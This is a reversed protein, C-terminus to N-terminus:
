EEGEAYLVGRYRTKGTRLKELGSQVGEVTLADREIVPSIGHRTPLSSVVKMGKTLFAMYPINLNADMGMVTLPFITSKKAMIPMFLSWNPEQSATVLLHNLKRPCDLKDKGKTTVFHSAGLEMAQSRKSESTSFVVVECRMAKAFQVALHGLGGVGIVGTVVPM